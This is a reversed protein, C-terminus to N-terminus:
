AHSAATTELKGAQRLHHAMLSATLELLDNDPVADLSELDLVVMGSGRDYRDFKAPKHTLLGQVFRLGESPHSWKKHPVGLPHHLEFAPQAAILSSSLTRLDRRSLLAIRGMIDRIAKDNQRNVDLM